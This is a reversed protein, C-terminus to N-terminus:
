RTKLPAATTTIRTREAEQMFEGQQKQMYERLRTSLAGLVLNEAGRLDDKKPAFGATHQAHLQILTRVISGPSPGDESRTIITWRQIRFHLGETPLVFRDAEVLVVRNPEEIKRVFSFGSIERVTAGSRLVWKFSKEVSAPKRQRLFHYSKENSQHITLFDRWFMVSAERVSCPLFTTSTIEFVKGRTQEQKVQLSSSISSSGKPQFVAASDLYLGEVMKELEGIMASSNNAVPHHAVPGPPEGFIANLNGLSAQDRFVERLAKSVKMQETLVARLRQNIVGSQLREQLQTAAIAAWSPRTAESQTLPMRTPECGDDGRKLQELRGELQESLARLALIEAKKRQQLRTSAGPTKKRKKKIPKKDNLKPEKKPLFSADELVGDFSDLLMSEVDEKSFPSSDNESESTTVADPSTSGTDWSDIFAVVEELTPMTANEEEVLLSM